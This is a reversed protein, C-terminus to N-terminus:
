AGQGPSAPQIGLMRPAGMRINQTLPLRHGRAAGRVKLTRHQFHRPQAPGLISPSLKYLRMSSKPMVYLLPTGVM